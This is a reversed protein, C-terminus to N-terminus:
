PRTGTAEGLCRSGHYARLRSSRWGPTRRTCSLTERVELWPSPSSCGRHALHDLTALNIRRRPALVDDAPLGFFFHHLVGHLVCLLVPNALRRSSIAFTFAAIRSSFYSSM